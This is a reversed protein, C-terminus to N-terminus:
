KSFERLVELLYKSNQTSFRYVRDGKEVMKIATTRVYRTGFELGESWMIFETGESPLTVTYGEIVDTRLNSHNSELKTLVVQYTKM